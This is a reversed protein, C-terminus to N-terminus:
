KNRITVDEILKYYRYEKTVPDRARTQGKLTVRIPDTPTPQSFSHETINEALPNRDGAAGIRYRLVNDSTSTRTFEKKRTILYLSTADPTTGWPLSVTLQTSSNGSISRQQPSGTGSVISVTYSSETTPDFEGANWSKRSDNLTSPGGGSAYGTDEVRDFSITDGEAKNTTIAPPTCPLKNCALRLERVVFDMAARSDAQMEVIANQALYIRSSSVVLDYIGTLVIGVIAIAILLEVLTYGKDSKLMRVM